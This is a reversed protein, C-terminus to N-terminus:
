RPRRWTPGPSRRRGPTWTWGASVTSRCRSPRAVTPSTSNPPTCCPRTNSRRTCWSGAPGDADVCAVSCPPTRPPPAAPPSPSSTPAYASPRPPRAPPTSCSLARAPGALLAPGPRGLRRRARGAAGAPRGSAAARRHGRGPLRPLCDRRGVSDDRDAGSGGDPASLSGLRTWGTMTSYDAVTPSAKAAPAAAGSPPAASVLVGRRALSAPGPPRLSNPPVASPRVACRM